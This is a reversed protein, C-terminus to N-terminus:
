ALGLRTVRAHQAPLMAEIEDAANRAGDCGIFERCLAAARERYASNALVETIAERMLDAGADGPLARGVSWDEAAKANIPQDGGLGPIIVMPLGNQLARMFTGHGGHTVVLDARRMLADHNTTAFVAVNETPRLKAPDVSDGVTVIGRVPMAALADMANQFKKVSGQEPATSFSVLVLPAGHDDPWPLDVTVAHRERELVPGVHKLKEPHGLLAGLPATDLARLTTAIMKDQVMWLDELKGSIPAFGAESRLGTLMAFFQRWMELARFVTTHCVAVSPRGFRAAELLAVPFMQDVIVLDPSESALLAAIEEAVAPSTLFSAARPLWKDQPYRDAQEYARKLEIARFGARTVRPVMEPRGAFSLRHGRESLVRAIGLSPPLNGGGSWNLWIISAM